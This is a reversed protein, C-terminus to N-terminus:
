VKQGKGWEMIIKFNANASAKTIFAIVGSTEMGVNVGFEISAKTPQIKELIQSFEKGLSIISPTLKSFNEEIEGGSVNREQSRFDSEVNISEKDFLTLKILNSM